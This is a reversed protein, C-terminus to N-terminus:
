YLLLLLLPPVLARNNCERGAVQSVQEFNSMGWHLALRAEKRKWFELM